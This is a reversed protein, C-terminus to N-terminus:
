TLTDKLKRTNKVITSIFRIGWLKATNQTGNTAVVKMRKRMRTSILRSCTFIKWCLVPSQKLILIKSWLRSKRFHLDRTQNKLWVNLSLIMSIQIKSSFLSLLLNERNSKRSCVRWKWTVTFQVSCSVCLSESVTFILVITLIQTTEVWNSQVPILSQAVNKHSVKLMMEKLIRSTKMMRLLLVM